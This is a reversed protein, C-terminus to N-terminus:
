LVNVSEMFLPYDYDETESNTSLAVLQTMAHVFWGLITKESCIIMNLAYGACKSCEIYM